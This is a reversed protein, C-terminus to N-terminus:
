MKKAAAANAMIEKLGGGAWKKLAKGQADVLVFTHQYTVAYQKKLATEKDYDTKFIVVGAPLKALNKTIDADAGKCNPCWTAHFFLVRVSGKAADFAAKSYVQYGKTMKDMSSTDHGAMDAPKTMTDAPKVMTDTAPKTMSAAATAAILAATLAPLLFKNM